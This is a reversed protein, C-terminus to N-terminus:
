LKKWPNKGWFKSTGDWSQWKKAEPSETLGELERGHAEESTRHPQRDYGGDLSGYRNLSLSRATFQGVVTSRQSGSSCLRVEKLRM